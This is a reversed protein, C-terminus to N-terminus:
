KRLFAGDFIKSQIRFVGRTSLKFHRDIDSLGRRLILLLFVLSLVQLSQEVVKVTPKSCYNEWHPQMKKSM